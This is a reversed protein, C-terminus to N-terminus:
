SSSSSSEKLLTRSLLLVPGAGLKLGPLHRPEASGTRVARALLAMRRVPLAQEAAELVERLAQLCGQQNKGIPARGNSSETYKLLAIKHLALVVVSAVIRAIRGLGEGHEEDDRNGLSSEGRSMAHSSWM